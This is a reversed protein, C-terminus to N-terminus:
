SSGISHEAPRCNSDSITTSVGSFWLVRRNRRAGGYLDSASPDSGTAFSSEWILMQKSTLSHGLSVAMQDLHCLHMNLFGHCM